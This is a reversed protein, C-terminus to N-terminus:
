SRKASGKTGALPQQIWARSDLRGVMGRLAGPQDACYKGYAIFGLQWFHSNASVSSASFPM